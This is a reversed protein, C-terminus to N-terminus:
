SGRSSGTSGTRVSAGSVKEDAARQGSSGRPPKTQLNQALFNDAQARESATSGANSRRTGLDVLPIDPGPGSEVSGQGRKMKKKKKQQVQMNKFAGICCLCLFVSFLVFIVVVAITVSTWEDCADELQQDTRKSCFERRDSLLFSDAVTKSISETDVKEKKRDRIGGDGGCYKDIVRKSCSKMQAYTCCQSVDNTGDWATTSKVGGRKFEAACLKLEPVAQEVCDVRMDGVDEEYSEVSATTFLVIAIWIQVSPSM